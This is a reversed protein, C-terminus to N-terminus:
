WREGKTVRDIVPLWTKVVFRYDWREMARQRCAARDLTEAWKLAEALEAEGGIVRGTVGDDFVERMAGQGYLIVPTGCLPPEIAKHSHSEGTGPPYDVPYFLAKAGQYIRLKEDGRAEGHFIFDVGDCAAKVAAAYEPPDGPTASGIVVLRQRLKRCAEIALGAGKTPHLKGLYVLYDGRPGEGPVLYDGDACHPDLVIADHRQVERFRELQWQSLCVVNFRPAAPQMIYPDHWIPSLHALDNAVRGIPKSHSFDLWCGAREGLRAVTPLLWPETFDHIPPGSDIRTVGRPLISGETCVCALNVGPALLGKVFLSVLREIGAYGQKGLPYVTPAIVTVAKTQSVM